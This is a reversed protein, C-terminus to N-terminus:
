PCHCRRGGLRRGVERCCCRAGSRPPIGSRGAPCGRARGAPAFDPAPGAREHRSAAIRVPLGELQGRPGAVAGDREAGVQARRAYEARVPPPDEGKGRGILAEARDVLDPVLLPHRVPRDAEDAAPAIIRVPHGPPRGVRPRHDADAVDVEPAVGPFLQSAALHPRGGVGPEASSHRAPRSGRQSVSVSARVRVSSCASPQACLMSTQSSPSRIPPAIPIPMPRMM